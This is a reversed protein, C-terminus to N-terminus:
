RATAAYDIVRIMYMGNARDKSAIELSFGAADGNVVVSTQKPPIGDFDEAKMQLSYGGGEALGGGEPILGEDMMVTGLIAPKDIAYTGITAM